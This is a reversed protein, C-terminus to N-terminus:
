HERYTNLMLQIKNIKEIQKDHLYEYVAMMDAPPEGKTSKCSNILKVVHSHLIKVHELEDNALDYYAKALDPYEEYKSLACKAYETAGDIEESIQDEIHEILKM